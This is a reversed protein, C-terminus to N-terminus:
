NLLRSAGKQPTITAMADGGSHVGIVCHLYSPTDPPIIDGEWAVRIGESPLAQSEDEKLEAGGHQQCSRRPIQVTSGLFSLCVGVQRGSYGDPAHAAVSSLREARVGLSVQM